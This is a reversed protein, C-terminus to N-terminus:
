RRRRQPRQDIRIRFDWTVAGAFGNAAFPRSGALRLKAGTARFPRTGIVSNPLAKSDALDQLAPGACRTRLPDRGYEAEGEGRWTFRMGARERVFFVNEFEHETRDFCHVPSGATAVDSTTVAETQFYAQAFRIRNGSRGVYLFGGKPPGGYAYVVTGSVGCVGHGACDTERDGAFDVRVLGTARDIEFQTFRPTPRKASAASTGLAVLLALSLAAAIRRM